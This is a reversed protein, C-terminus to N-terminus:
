STSDGTSSGTRRSALADAWSDTLLIADGTTKTLQGVRAGVNVTDGSLTFELKGGGRVVAPM